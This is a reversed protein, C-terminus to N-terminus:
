EESVLHAVRERVVSDAALDVSLDSRQLCDPDVYDFCVVLDAHSVVAVFETVAVAVLLGVAPDAHSQFVLYVEVVAQVVAVVEPAPVPVVLAEHGDLFVLAM